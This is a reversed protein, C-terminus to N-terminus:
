PIRVHPELPHLLHFLDDAVDIEFCLGGRLWLVSVVYTPIGFLDPCPLRVWPLVVPCPVSPILVTGHCLFVDETNCRQSVARRETYGGDLSNELVM